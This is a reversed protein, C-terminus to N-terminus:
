RQIINLIERLCKIEFEQLRRETDADLTWSKCGYILIDLKLSPFVNIKYNGDAKAKGHRCHGTWDLGQESKKALAARQMPHNCGIDRLLQSGRTAGLDDAMQNVCKVHQCCSAGRGQEERYENGHTSLRQQRNEFRVTLEQLEKETLEM